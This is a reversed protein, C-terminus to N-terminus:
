SAISLRADVGLHDRLAGTVIISGLSLLGVLAIVTLTWAGRLNM